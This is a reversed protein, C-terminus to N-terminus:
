TALSNSPMHMLNRQAVSAFLMASADFSNHSSVHVYLIVSIAWKVITWQLRHRSLTIVSVCLSFGEGCQRLFTRCTAMKEGNEAVTATKQSLRVKRRCARTTCPSSASASFSLLGTYRKTEMTLAKINRLECWALSCAIVVVLLQTYDRWKRNDSTTAILASLKLSSMITPLGPNIM